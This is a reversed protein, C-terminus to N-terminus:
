KAVIQARSLLKRVSESLQNYDSGAAPTRAIFIIDWGSCLPALRLIERLRRKIRNRVVANGTRKSVSIGFRSFELQNPLAKLVLFRDSQTSGKEYVLTYQEPRTLRAERKLTSKLSSHSTLSRNAEQSGKTTKSKFCGPRGPHEDKQSFRAREQTTVKQTAM